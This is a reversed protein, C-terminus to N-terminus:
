CEEEEDDNLNKYTVIQKYKKKNKHQTLLSDLETRSLNNVPCAKTFCKYRRELPLSTDLYGCQYCEKKIIM